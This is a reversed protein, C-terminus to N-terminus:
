PTCTTCFVTSIAATSTGTSKLSLNWCDILKFLLHRLNLENDAHHVNRNHEQSATVTFVTCFVASIGCTRTCNKTPTSMGTTTCRSAGPLLCHMCGCNCHEPPPFPPPTPPPLRHKDAKLRTYSSMVCTILEILRLSQQAHVTMNGHVYVCM